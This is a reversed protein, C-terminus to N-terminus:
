KKDVIFIQKCEKARSLATYIVDFPSKHLEHFCYPEEITSGQATHATLARKGNKICTDVCVNTYCINMDTTSKKVNQLNMRVYIKVYNLNKRHEKIHRLLNDLKNSYRIHEHKELEVINRDIINDIVYRTDIFAKDYEQKKFREMTCQYEDTLFIYNINTMEKIHNLKKFSDQTLQVAEDIILYKKDKFIRRLEADSKGNILSQLTQGNKHDKTNAITTSTM